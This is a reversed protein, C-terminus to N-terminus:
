QKVGSVEAQDPDVLKVSLLPIGLDRLEKLLGYSAAQDVVTGTLLTDGNNELVPTFTVKREFSQFFM